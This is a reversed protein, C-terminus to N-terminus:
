VLCVGIVEVLGCAGYFDAHRLIQRWAWPSMSDAADLELVRAVLIKVGNVSLLVM